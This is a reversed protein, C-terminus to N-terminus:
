EKAPKRFAVVQKGGAGGEVQKFQCEEVKDDPVVGKCAARVASLQEAVLKQREQQAEFLKIKAELYEVQSANNALQASAKNLSDLQESSLARQSELAPVKPVVDAGSQSFILGCTAVTVLGLHKLKM